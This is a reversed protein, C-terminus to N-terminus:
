KRRGYFWVFSKALSAVMLLFTLTLKTNYSDIEQSISVTAHNLAESYYPDKLKQVHQLKLLIHVNKRFEFKKQIISGEIFFSM